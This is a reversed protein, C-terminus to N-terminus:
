TKIKFFNIDTIIRFSQGCRMEISSNFKEGNASLDLICVHHSSLKSERMMEIVYLITVYSCIFIYQCTGYLKKHSYEVSYSPCVSLCCFYGTIPCVSLVFGKEQKTMWCCYIDNNSKTEQRESTSYFLIQYIPLSLIM